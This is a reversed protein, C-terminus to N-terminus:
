AASLCRGSAKLTTRTFSAGFTCTTAVASLKTRGGVTLCPTTAKHEDTMVLDVKNSITNRVFRMMTARDANEIMQCVVNGKRSIAGIVV